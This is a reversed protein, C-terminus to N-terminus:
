MLMVLLWAMELSVVFSHRLSDDFNYVGVVVVVVVVVM